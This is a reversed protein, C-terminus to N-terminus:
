GNNSSFMLYVVEESERARSEICVSRRRWEGRGCGLARFREFSPLETNAVIPM